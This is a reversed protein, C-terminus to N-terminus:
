FHPHIKALFAWETRVVCATIESCMPSAHEASRCIGFSWSQEELAFATADRYKGALECVMGAFTFAM